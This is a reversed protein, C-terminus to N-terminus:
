FVPLAVYPEAWARLSLEPAWWVGHRQGFQWLVARDHLMYVPFREAFGQRLPRRARYADVYARALALDEDAFWAASRVLDQEGDGMVAGMYDFVGSVRWAGAEREVVLNGPKYDGMVFCAEFPIGLAGECRAITEEVWAVDAATTRDSEARAVEVWERIQNAVREAYPQDFPQVTDTDLDYAGPRPWTLRHLEALADGMARAVGRRDGAGLGEWVAPDSLQLGPMRPMVVYSWGFVESGLELRYPWPVPARTHAHLQETYFREEPFQHPWFPAGRLVYQGRTSTLFLNQGFNGASIPEARVLTGLDFRDLAAQLQARTLLGLRESYRRGQGESM